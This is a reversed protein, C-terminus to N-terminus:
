RGRVADTVAGWAALPLTLLVPGTVEVTVLAQAVANSSSVLGDPSMRQADLDWRLGRSSVRAAGLPLLAARDGPTLHWQSSGQPLLVCVDDRSVLVVHCASRRALVGLVSFTHDLRGGLFGAAMILPAKVRMLCKDFDTSDQEAVPHLIDAFATRAASTLSDMDGIVALPRLGARLAHNAGGDAAVISPAHSLCINLENADLDAGGLLTIPTLAHVITDVM